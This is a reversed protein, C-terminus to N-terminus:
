DLKGSVSSFTRRITVLHSEHDDIKAVKENVFAVDIKITAM